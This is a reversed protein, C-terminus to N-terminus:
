FSWTEHVNVRVCEWVFHLGLLINIFFGHGPARPDRRVEESLNNPLARCRIIDKASHRRKSHSIHSNREISRTMIATIEEDSQERQRKTCYANCKALRRRSLTESLWDNNTNYVCKRGNCLFTVKNRQAGRINIHKWPKWFIKRKNHKHQHRGILPRMLNLNSLSKTRTPKTSDYKQLDVLHVNLLYLNFVFSNDQLFLEFFTSSEDHVESKKM